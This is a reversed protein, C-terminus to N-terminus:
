YGGDFLQREAARKQAAEMERLDTLRRKRDQEAALQKAKAQALFTNLGGKAQANRYSGADRTSQQGVDIVGPSTDMGLMALASALDQNGGAVQQNNMTVQQNYGDRASKKNAQMLALTDRYEAEIDRRAARNAAVQTPDLEISTVVPANPVPKTKDQNAPNHAQHENKNWVPIPAKQSREAIRPSMPSNVPTGSGRYGDIFGGVTQPLSVAGFEKAGRRVAGGREFWSGVGQLVKPMAPAGIRSAGRAAINAVKGPGVGTWLGELLGQAGQRLGSAINRAGGTRAQRYGSMMQDAGFWDYATGRMGQETNELLGMWDRTQWNKKFSDTDYTRVPQQPRPAPGRPPRANAQAWPAAYPDQNTM